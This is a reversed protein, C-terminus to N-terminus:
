ARPNIKHPSALSLTPAAEDMRTASEEQDWESVAHAPKVTSHARMRLHQLSTTECTVWRTPFADLM